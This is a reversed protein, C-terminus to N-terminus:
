GLEQSRLDARQSAGRKRLASSDCTVRAEYVLSKVLAVVSTPAKAIRRALDFATDWVLEDPVVENVLGVKDAWSAEKWAGTLLAELIVNANLRRAALIPIDVPPIGLGVEPLAFRASKGCVVVDSALVIAFGEGICPGLVGCVVPKTISESHLFDLDLGETSILGKQAGDIMGLDGGACFAKGNAVILIARVAPNGQHSEMARNFSVYMDVSMANRKEPRNLTVLGV